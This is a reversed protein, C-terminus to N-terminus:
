FKIKIGTKFFFQNDSTSYNLSASLDLKNIINIGTEIGPQYDPKVSKGIPYKINLAANIGSWKFKSSKVFLNNKQSKVSFNDYVNDYIYEKLIRGENNVAKIILKDDDKNVQLMLDYNLVKETFVTDIRQYYITEPESKKQVIREHWKIVTDKKIEKEYRTLLTTDHIIKTGSDQPKRSYRYISYIIGSIIILLLCLILYYKKLIEM